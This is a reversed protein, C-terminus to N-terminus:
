THQTYPVFGLQKEWARVKRKVSKFDISSSFFFHSKTVHIGAIGCSEAAQVNVLQDDLFVCEAPDLHFRTLLLHYIAPDPKALGEEGSIVIGDFLDFFDSHQARILDFSESGWNSLVYVRHGRKKCARVLSEAHPSLIQTATMQEPVFILNTMARLLQKEAYGRQTDQDLRNYIVARIEASKMEGTMLAHMIRPLPKGQEDLSAIEHSQYAMISELFSMLFFRAGIIHSPSKFLPGAIKLFGNKKSTEFCVGNLDFIVNGAELISGSAIALM